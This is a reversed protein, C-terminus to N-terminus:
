ATACHARLSYGCPNLLPLLGYTVNKIRDGKTSLWHSIYLIMALKAVESPQYSGEYFGRQAGFIAEGFFLVIVLGLVTGGLFLVSFRRLIHYDFQMIVFLGVLGIGLAMSQRRLYYTSDDWFRLGYDFTTSFVMLMGIILLGALSLLLWYDFRLRIGQHVRNTKRRVVNVM